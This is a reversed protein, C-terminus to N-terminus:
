QTSGPPAVAELFAPLDDLGIPYNELEILDGHLRLMAPSDPFLHIDSAERTQADKLLKLLPAIQKDTITAM